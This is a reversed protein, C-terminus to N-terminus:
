FILNCNDQPRYYQFYLNELPIWEELYRQYLDRDNRELCRHRQENSDITLFVKYNYPFDLLPHLSYVGEIITLQRPTITIPEALAQLKCDFPQYCFSKGTRLPALVEKKFREYHINGGPQALRESTKLLEPLFFHDTSIINSCYISALYRALTSKGACSMGEIALHIPNGQILLQDIKTLLSSYQSALLEAKIM